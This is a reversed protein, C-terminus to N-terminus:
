DAQRKSNTEYLNETIPGRFIEENLFQLVKKAEPKESPFVVKDESIHIHVNYQTSRERIEVASYKDLVGSDRLMAFRKRVWQNAGNVVADPDQTALREHGLVDRIEQDSAEKYFDELPLFTNVTRYSRFLLKGESPLYVATLKDDLTMGPDQITTYTNEQLFLFRGPRIVHSRSFNQFLVIEAGRENRAFAVVGKISEILTENSRIRDLNPVTQSDEYVIWPPPTYDKLCFCEHQEPIYGANFDIEQIEFVFRRFQDQWNEALDDQLDQYLPISLLNTETGQKIIVALQFNELM